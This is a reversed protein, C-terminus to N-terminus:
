GDRNLPSNLHKNISKELEVEDEHYRRLHQTLPFPPMAVSDWQRAKCPRQCWAPPSFNTNNVQHPRLSQYLVSLARHSCVQQGGGEGGGEDDGCM